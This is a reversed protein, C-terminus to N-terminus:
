RAQKDGEEDDANKKYRERGVAPKKEDADQYADNDSGAKGQPM